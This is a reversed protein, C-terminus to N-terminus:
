RVDAEPQGVDDQNMTCLYCKDKAYSQSMENKHCCIKPDPGQFSAAQRRPSMKKAWQTM